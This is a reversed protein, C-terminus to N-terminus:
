FLELRIRDHPNHPLPERLILRIRAKPKYICGHGRAVLHASSAKEEWRAIAKLCVNNHYHRALLTCLEEVKKCIRLSGVRWFM